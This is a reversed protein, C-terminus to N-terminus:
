DPEELGVMVSWGGLRNADAAGTLWLPRGRWMPLDGEPEAGLNALM